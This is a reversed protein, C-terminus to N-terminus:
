SVENGSSFASLFDDFTGVYGSKTFAVLMNNRITNTSPHDYGLKQIMVRYSKGYWALAEAYDGQNQHVVAVNNYTAATNPHESGLAKERIALAKDYWELAEAYDGQDYYVGAINNYTTATDPHEVGLARECIALAKDYWALAKAYDGQDQYVDAMNHYTTATDPHEAGLAKERIALAKGYWALAEAYDGQDQYVGAINNYTTATDPHETGSVKEDIALAKGYWALAEAYDGQDQYVGAINNYTTATDPHEAGLVKECIALAKGYWALAKAYDGQEYYVQAMNNYTAASLPHEAGLVKECIALAKDYWALANAYDGQANYVGAINNYTSATDPHEAGLAKERIALAKGYWALAKEYDGQDQYIGAINNYTSATDPHEAGLAKERIALAKDYWALAKAYDGSRHFGFGAEHYVWAIKKQEAEDEKFMNGAYRAIELVHPVNQAFAEMSQKNGWKYEFVAYALNLCYALWQTDAALSQRAVMQVLRHISLCDGSRKVLAYKTLDRIVENATLAAGLKDCLPQPLTNRGQTFFELPINDPAMYACLYFLQRAPESFKEFSISWTTTVIGEYDELMATEDEFMELGHQELLSLYGECNCNNDTEAMYASAQELALPLRGLHHILKDLAQKDGITGAPLRERMFARADKLNFVDLEVTVMKRLNLRRDRTTILVHGSKLDAIYPKIDEAKVVNDFVLLFSTHRGFWTNLRGIFEGDTMQKAAEAGEPILGFRAAFALLDDKPTNEADVWWIADAYEPGFRYAYELALQTKGVGGLGAISQKVCVAGNNDFAARVKNLEDERGCFSANREKLNNVPLGAESMAPQPNETPQHLAKAISQNFQTYPGWGDIRPDVGMRPDWHHAQISLHGDSRLEGISFAAQVGNEQKMCGMTIEFAQNRIPRWWVKHEDGCLYLKVNYGGLLAEVAKREDQSFYEPAHHALVIIPADPNEKKIAGLAALLDYNGIVLSGREENKNCTIATNMYLISYGDFCRCTHIPRMNVPWIPDDPHLLGSVHKFFTFRKLLWAEDEPDFRGQDPDYEEVIGALKRKQQGHTYRTLDHNGPVIHIHEPEVVGVSDALNRLFAVSEGAAAVLDTDKKHHRANRFDGTAFVEDVRVGIRQLYGPLQERLQTTARGDRDPNYHIDSIHLWRM